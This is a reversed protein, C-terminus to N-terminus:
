SGIRRLLLRKLRGEPLYHKAALKFPLAILLLCLLVLPKALGVLFATM